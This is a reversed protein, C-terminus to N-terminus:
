DRRRKADRYWNHAVFHQVYDRALLLHIIDRQEKEEKKSLPPSTTREHIEAARKKLGEIEKKLDKWIYPDRTTSKSAQHLIFVNLISNINTECDVIGLLGEAQNSTMVDHNESFEVAAAYLDDSLRDVESRLHRLLEETM